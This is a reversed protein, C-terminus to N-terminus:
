TQQVVVQSLTHVLRHHSLLRIAGNAHAICIIQIFLLQHNIRFLHFLLKNQELQEQLKKIEKLLKENSVPKKVM